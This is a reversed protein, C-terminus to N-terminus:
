LLDYFATGPGPLRVERAAGTIEARGAAPADFNITSRLKRRLFSRLQLRIRAGGLPPTPSAFDGLQSGTHM